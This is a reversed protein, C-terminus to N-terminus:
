KAHLNSPKSLFRLVVYLSSVYISPYVNKKIKQSKLNKQSNPRQFLPPALFGGGMDLLTLSSVFPPLLLPTTM